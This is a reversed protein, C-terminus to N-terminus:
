RRVYSKFRKLKGDLYDVTMRTLQAYDERRLFLWPFRNANHYAPYAFGNENVTSGFLFGRKSKQIVKISDRLRGTEVMPRAAVVAKGRAVKAKKAKITSKKLKPWKVGRVGSTDPRRGRFMMMTLAKIWSMSTRLLPAPNDVKRWLKTIMREVEKTEVRISLGDAM